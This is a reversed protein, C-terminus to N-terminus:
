ASGAPEHATLAWHLAHDFAAAGGAKDVIITCRDDRIMAPLSSVASGTWCIIPLRPHRHRTALFLGASLERELRWDLIVARPPPSGRLAALYALPAHFVTARVGGSACLEEALSAAAPEDDVVWADPQWEGDPVAREMM